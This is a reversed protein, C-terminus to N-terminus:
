GSQSERSLAYRLVALIKRKRVIMAEIHHERYRATCEVGDVLLDPLVILWRKDQGIFYADFGAAQFTFASSINYILFM